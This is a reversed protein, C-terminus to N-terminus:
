SWVLRCRPLAADRLNVLEVCGIGRAAESAPVVEGAGPLTSKLLVLRPAGLRKAAHAAISDSTFQWRHPVDAGHQREHELWAVPEIVAVKGRACADRCTQRDAVLRTAVGASRLATALVRAHLAMAHICLWHAEQEDLTIQQDVHRVTDAAGGGGTVITAPRPLWRVLRQVLCPMDLLSGGVKVVCPVGM